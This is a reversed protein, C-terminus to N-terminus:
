IVDTFLSDASKYWASPVFGKQTFRSINQTWKNNCCLKAIRASTGWGDWVQVLFWNIFYFKLVQLKLIPMWICCHWNVNARESGQSPHFFTCINRAMSESTMSKIFNEAKLIWESDITWKVSQCNKHHKTYINQFRQQFCYVLGTIRVNVQYIVRKQLHFKM